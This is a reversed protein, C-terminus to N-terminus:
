AVRHSEADARKLTMGHGPLDLVMGIHGASVAPTGAFLLADVRRHDHFLEIHRVNPVAACVPAHLHPACHASVEINRAAALAATHLWSTYGGCRTVDIQLCDVAEAALMREFYSEHDGYEGAAVDVPLQNRVARLGALDDSSVPEEFWSIGGEDLMRRGVRVAQHAGYAGNADVFLQREAGIVRRALAVRHLDRDPRMGWSEGVKIKVQTVGDDAIWHELQATTTADDYTTFGGSGYVPVADRFRGFLAPLSMDLLRAKLDWLAIDVASIAAAAIGARGLNRVSRLLREHLAPIDMPDAGVVSPALEGRVVEAAAASSYTWGTGTTGEAHAEVAVVTTSSWALTGDAEPHDTSVRYAAVDLGTVTTGV